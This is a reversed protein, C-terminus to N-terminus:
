QSAGTILYVPNQSLMLTLEGAPRSHSVALQTVETRYGLARLTSVATSLTELAVASVCVRAAPNANQVARLIEPLRGGSGGVFVADPRPLDELAAPAEGSVLRLNWAGLRRRNEEAVALAACEREVGWVAKAQLALEVSVSGTGAGIDWCTDAPTVALASLIAARVMQKTMPVGEARTFCADPLGPMRTPFRPAPDCLMVNLPAFSQGALEGATGSVIREEACGLNEGVWVPLFDLGAATLEACLTAPTVRGGTLFFVPRGGCVASVADCDVGHASCLRWDQWPRGLRAALLQLSSLGPLLCM